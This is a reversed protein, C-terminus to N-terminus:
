QAASRLLVLAVQNSMQLTFNIKLTLMSRLKSIFDTSEMIMWPSEWPLISISLPEHPNYPMLIYLKTLHMKEASRRSIVIKM